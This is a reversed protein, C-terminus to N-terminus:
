LLGRIAEQRLRHDDDASLGESIKTRALRSANQIVQERVEAQAQALERAIRRSVDKKMGAAAVEANKVITAAIQAGETALRERIAQQESEIDKLSNELNYLDREAESIVSAAKKLHAEIGAARALLAPAIFKAYAYGILGLYILFNITPWVLSAITPEEHHAAEGAFASQPLVFLLAYGVMGVYGLVVVGFPAKRSATTESSSSTEFMETMRCDKM